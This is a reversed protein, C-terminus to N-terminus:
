LDELADIRKILKNNLMLIVGICSVILVASAILKWEPLTDVNNFLWASVALLVGIVIGIWYKLLNIREKIVDLQSM